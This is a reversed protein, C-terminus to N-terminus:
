LAARIGINFTRGDIPAWVDTIPDGGPGLSPRILPDWRTQRVNSLNIANAFISFKRLRLEALANFSFYDRSVLRYPDDMLPQTGTYDFELGVRGRESEVIGDLTAARRPILPVDRRLGTQDAETADIYSYSAIAHLPGVVYTGLVEAGPARRPGPANYLELKDGVALADLAQRIESTFLSANVDWSVDAWKADLSATVAREARLGRLPLLSGL